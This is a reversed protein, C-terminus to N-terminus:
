LDNVSELHRREFPSLIAAHAMYRQYKAERDSAKLWGYHKWFIGEPPTGMLYPYNCPAHGCHLGRGTWQPADKQCSPRFLWPRNVAYGQWFGDARHLDQDDWCDYLPIGWSNVEWSTLMARWIDPNAYLIQDADAILLWGDGAEKAGWDWLEARAPSENGWMGAGGRDRVEAGCARAVGRSDDTSGDDLVLIKDCLPRLADLCERLYRDAENKVLLAAVCRPV